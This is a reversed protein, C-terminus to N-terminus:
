FEVEVTQQEVREERKALGELQTRDAATLDKNTLSRPWLHEAKVVNAEIGYLTLRAALYLFALLALIPAFSGYLSNSHALKHALGIGVGTLLTWVAGGFIAGPLLDRLSALPPSLIRFSVVFLGVNVLLALLSSLTPGGAWKLVAGLSSVFTSAVIGLGFVCYWALGRLLRPGFRLQDRQPVNWVQSMTHQAVQALGMAGWVLGIVGAAIAVPSGQLHKGELETAAPGIIPYSGVHKEITRITEQDGSLVYAMVTFAALLLPFISLFAYYTVLASLYGGRDDGFKKNVAFLFATVKFRRQFADLKDVTWIYEFGPDTEFSHRPPGQRLM